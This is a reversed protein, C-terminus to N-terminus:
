AEKTLYTVAPDVTGDPYEAQDFYRIGFKECEEQLYQSFKIMTEVLDRIREDSVNNIWDNPTDGADKIETFKDEPSIKAYGVFCAKVEQGYEQKLEDVQYPLISDGEFLYDIGTELISVFMEKVVPWLKEATHISHDDSDLGYDPIGNAVGALVYDLSCYAIKEQNLIHRAITSKGSRSAGGVIYLM